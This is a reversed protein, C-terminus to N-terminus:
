DIQVEVISDTNGRMKEGDTDLAVVNQIRFNGGEFNGATFEAFGFIGPSIQRSMGIDSIVVLLINREPFDKCTTFSKMHTEPIGDLCSSLNGVSAGEPYHLEFQVGSVNERALNFSVLSAGQGVSEKALEIGGEQAETQGYFTFASVAVAALLLNTIKM